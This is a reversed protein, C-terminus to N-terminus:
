KKILFKLKAYWGKPHLKRELLTVKKAFNAASQKAVSLAQQSATYLERYKEKVKLTKELKSQLQIKKTDIGIRLEKEKLLEETIKSLM